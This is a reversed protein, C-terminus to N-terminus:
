EALHEFEIKYGASHLTDVVRKFFVEAERNMQYKGVVEIVLSRGKAAPYREYIEGSEIFRLYTNVKEQLLFMHMKADEAWPLHDSITLYIEDTGPDRSISDVVDTQDISM